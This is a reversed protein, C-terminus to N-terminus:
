IYFLFLVIHFSWDYCVSFNSFKPFLFVHTFWACFRKWCTLHHLSPLCACWDVRFFSICHHNQIFFTSLQSSMIIPGHYQYVRKNLLCVSCNFRLAKYCIMVDHFSSWYGKRTSIHFPNGIMTTHQNEPDDFYIVPLQPYDSPTTLMIVYNGSTVSIASPLPDSTYQYIKPPLSIMLPLPLSIWIHDLVMLQFHIKSPTMVKGM